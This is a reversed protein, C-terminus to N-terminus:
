ALRRHRGYSVRTAITGPTELAELVYTKELLDILEQFTRYKLMREGIQYSGVCPTGAVHDAIADKIATRLATWTTFSM